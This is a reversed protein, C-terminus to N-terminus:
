RRWGVPARTKVREFYYWISAYPFIVALFIYRWQNKEYRISQYIMWWGGLPPIAFALLATALLLPNRIPGAWFFLWLQFAM